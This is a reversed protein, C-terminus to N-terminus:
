YYSFLIGEKLRLSSDSKFEIVEKVESVILYKL